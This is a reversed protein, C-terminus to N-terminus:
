NISLLQSIKQLERDLEADITDVSINRAFQARNTHVLAVEDYLNSLTTQVIGRVVESSFGTDKPTPHYSYRVRMREINPATYGSADARIVCVHIFIASNKEIKVKIMAVTDDVSGPDCVAIFASRYKESAAYDRGQASVTISSSLILGRLAQTFVRATTMETAVHYQCVMNTLPQIVDGAVVIRPNNKICLRRVMDNVAVDNQNLYIRQEIEKKMQAIAIQTAKEQLLISISNALSIINDQESVHRLLTNTANDKIDHDSVVRVLAFAGRLKEVLTAIDNPQPATRTWVIVPVRPMQIVINKIDSGNDVYHLELSQNGSSTSATVSSPNFQKQLAKADDCLLVTVVSSSASSASVSSIVSM